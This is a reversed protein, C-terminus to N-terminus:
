VSDPDNWFRSVDAMFQTKDKPDCFGLYSITRLRNKLEVFSDIQDKKWLSSIDAQKHLKQRLM